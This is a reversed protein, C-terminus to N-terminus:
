TANKNLSAAGQPLAKHFQEINGDSSLDISFVLEGGDKYVIAHVERRYGAVPCDVYCRTRGSQSHDLQLKVDGM